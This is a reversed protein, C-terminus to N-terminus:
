GNFKCSASCNLCTVNPTLLAGECYNPERMPNQVKWWPDPNPDEPRLCNFERIWSPCKHPPREIKERKIWDGKLMETQSFSTCTDRQDEPLPKSEDFFDEKPKEPKPAPAPAANSEDDSSSGSSSPPSRTVKEKPKKGEKPKEEAEDEEEYDAEDYEEEEAEEEAHLSRQHLSRCSWIFTLICEAM